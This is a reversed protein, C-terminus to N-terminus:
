RQTRLLAEAQAECGQHALWAAEMPVSPLDSPVLNVTVAAEESGDFSVYYIADGRIASSIPMVLRDSAEPWNLEAIWSRDAATIVVTPTRVTAPRWFVAPAGNPLCVNGSRSIDLVWPDPLRAVASGARTAGVEVTRAQQQTVLANLATSLDSGGSAAAPTKDYPGSLKLTVGNVAILTVHQGEVLVLPKASDIKEGPHLAIGRAAVVM